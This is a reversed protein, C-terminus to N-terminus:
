RRKGHKKFKASGPKSHKPAEQVVPAVPVSELPPYVQEEATEALAEPVEPATPEAPEIVPAPELPAVEEVVPPAEPASATLPGEAARVKKMTRWILDKDALRIQVEHAYTTRVIGEVEGGKLHTVVKDGAKFPNVM